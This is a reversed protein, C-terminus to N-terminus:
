IDRGCTSSNPTYAYLVELIASHLNRSIKKNSFKVFIFFIMGNGNNTLDSLKFPWNIHLGVQMRCVQVEADKNQKYACSQSRHEACIRDRWAQFGYM